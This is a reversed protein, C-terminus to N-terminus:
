FSSSCLPVRTSEQLCFLRWNNRTKPNTNHDGRVLILYRKGNEKIDRVFPWLLSEVQSPLIQPPPVVICVNDRLPSILINTWKTVEPLQEKLIRMTRITATATMMLISGGLSSVEGTSLAMVPRFAQEQGKNM